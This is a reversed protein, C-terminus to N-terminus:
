AFIWNFPKIKVADDKDIGANDKDLVLLCNALSLQKVRHSDQSSLPTVSLAGQEDYDFVARLFEQRGAQKKIATTSKATLTLTIPPNNAQLLQWLAPRIFELCGVITSLPNGPLGFYLVTKDNKNFEGFVFPKGPKMAVKYHNIKGLDNVVQTLFDYDGVSVGASSIIVDCEDIANKIGDFTAQYDDKIIGYNKIHIPLNKLLSILTPSNSNYIQALSTLPTGIEVLEDGTAIIGVTLPCFVPVNDIGMTALLSIDSPTLRQYKKLLREGMQIEEGQKRINAGITPSKNIVIQYPNSKDLTNKLQEFNTHEQMIVSDCGMPVVAGTFIRIAQNPLLEGMFPTGACSEGVVNFSQGDNLQSGIALAFGDMASVNQRPLDLTAIVDQALIHNQATNLSLTITKNNPTLTAIREGIATKLENVTIM